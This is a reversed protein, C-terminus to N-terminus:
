AERNRGTMCVDVTSASAPLQGTPGGCYPTAHLSVSSHVRKMNHYEIHSRFVSTFNEESFGSQTDYHSRGCHSKTTTFVKFRM